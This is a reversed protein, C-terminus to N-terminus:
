IGVNYTIAELFLPMVKVVFCLVNRSHEERGFVPSINCLIVRFSLLSKACRFRIHSM